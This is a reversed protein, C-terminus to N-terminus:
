EHHGARLHRCVAPLISVLLLAASLLPTGCKLLSGVSPAVGMHHRGAHLLAAARQSFSTYHLFVPYVTRLNLLIVTSACNRQVRAHRRLARVSTQLGATCWVPCAASRIHQVSVASMQGSRLMEPSMHSMTGIQQPNLANCCCTIADTLQREPAERNLPTASAHM